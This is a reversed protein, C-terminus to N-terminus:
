SMDYYIFCGDSMAQDELAEAVANDHNFGATNGGQYAQDGATYWSQINAAAQDCQAQSAGTGTAGARVRGTKVGPAGLAPHAHTITPAKAISKASAVGTAGTLSLAAVAALATLTHRTKTSRM